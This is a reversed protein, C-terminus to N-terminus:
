RCRLEQWPVPGERGGHECVGVGGRSNSEGAWSSHAMAREPTLTGCVGDHRIPRRQMGRDAEREGDGNV